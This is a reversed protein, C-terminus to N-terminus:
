GPGAGRPERAGPAGRDAEKPCPVHELDYVQAPLWDSDGTDIAIAIRGSAATRVIVGGTQERRIELSVPTGRASDGERWLLGGSAVKWATIGPDARGNPPQYVLPRGRCWRQPAGPVLLSRSSGTSLGLVSNVRNRVMKVGLRRYGDEGPLWLGPGPPHTILVVTAATVRVAEYLDWSTTESYYGPAEIRVVFRGPVFPLRYTGDEGATVSVAQGDVGARAPVPHGFLDVVKGTIAGNERACGPVLVFACTALLLVVSRFATTREM